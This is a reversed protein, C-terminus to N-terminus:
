IYSSRSLQTDSSCVTRNRGTAKAVYLGQDAAAMLAHSDMGRSATAIGISVTIGDPVLDLLRRSTEARLREAARMAGNRDTHPMVVCFEEGGMRIPIDSERALERLLEGFRALVRDGLEHGYRDNVDKFYDIDCVLLAVTATPQCRTM